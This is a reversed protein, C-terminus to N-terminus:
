KKKLFWKDFIASFKISDYLCSFELENSILFKSNLPNGYATDIIKYIVRNETM